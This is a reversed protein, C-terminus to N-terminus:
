RKYIFEVAMATIYAASFCNFASELMDRSLQWLTLSQGHKFMFIQMAASGALLSLILPTAFIIYYKSFKNLSHFFDKFDKVKVQM